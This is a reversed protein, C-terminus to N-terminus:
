LRLLPLTTTGSSQNCAVLAPKQLAHRLSLRLTHLRRAKWNCRLGAERRNFDAKAHQKLTTAIAALIM